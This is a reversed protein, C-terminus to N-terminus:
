QSNWFRYAMKRGINYKHKESIKNRHLLSAKRKEVVDGNKYTYIGYCEPIEGECKDILEEPLLFSFYNCHTLGERLAEHKLKKSYRAGTEDVVKITKRFDARFDSVSIKIEIEDVYGSPRIGLIDMEGRLYDLYINPAVLEYRPSWRAYFAKQLNKANM